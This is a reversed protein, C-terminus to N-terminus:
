QALVIYQGGLLEHKGPPPMFTMRYIENALQQDSHAARQCAESISSAIFWGNMEPGNMKIVCILTSQDTAAGGALSMGLPGFGPRM